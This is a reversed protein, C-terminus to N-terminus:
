QYHNALVRFSIFHYLIIHFSIFHFPNFNFKLHSIIRERDIEIESTRNDGKHTAMRRRCDSYKLIQVSKPYSERHGSALNASAWLAAASKYQFESFPWSSQCQCQCARKRIAAFALKGVTEAISNPAGTTTTTTAIAQTHPNLSSLSRGTRAVKVRSYKDRERPARIIKTGDLAIWYSECYKIDNLQISIIQNSIIANFRMANRQTAYRNKPDGLKSPWVIPVYDLPIQNRLANSAIALM